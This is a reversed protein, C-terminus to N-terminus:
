FGTKSFDIKMGGNTFVGYTFILGVSFIKFYPTEIGNKKLKSAAFREVHFQDEHFLPLLEVHFQDTSIRLVSDSTIQALFGFGLEFLAFGIM